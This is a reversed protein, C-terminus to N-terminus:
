GLPDNEEEAAPADAGQKPDGDFDYDANLDVKLGAAKRDLYFKAQKRQDADLKSEPGTLKGGVGFHELIASLVQKCEGNKKAKADEASMGSTVATMYAVAANKVDEDSVTKAAPKGTEKTTTKDAAKTAAPPKGGKGADIKEIAAQQGAILKEQNAAVRELAATNKNLAEELSM